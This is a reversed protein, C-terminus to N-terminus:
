RSPPCGYSLQISCPAEVEKTPPEFGEPHALGHREARLRSRRQQWAGIAASCDEAWRAADHEGIAEVIAEVLRAELMRLPHRDALLATRDLTRGAVQISGTARIVSIAHIADSAIRHRGIPLALMSWRMAPTLGLPIAVDRPATDRHVRDLDDLTTCCIAGAPAPFRDGAALFLRAVTM